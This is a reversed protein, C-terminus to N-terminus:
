AEGVDPRVEVGRCLGRQGLQIVRHLPLVAWGHERAVAIAQGDGAQVRPVKPAVQLHATERHCHLPM